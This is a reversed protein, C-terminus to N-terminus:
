ATEEGGMWRTLMATFVEPDIPKALHANMGAEVCAEADEKFANATMAIIPIEPAFERIIRTATLGDMIPMQMDMLILDYDNQRALAVAIEGNEAEDIVCGTDELMGATIMRNVEVDEVILIRKGIYIAQLGATESNEDNKDSLKLEGSWKVPVKFSFTSGKGETSEVFISGGMLEVIQKCITLGLGTGGYRRTISKDAQEFSDFLKELADASIGIGTDTCSVCLMDSDLIETVLTITGLDPTFKVANSLLNVIVQSIRFEDALMYRTIPTKYIIDTQIRKDLAKDSVVNVANDLMKAYDFENESIELKGSEIKSMDLVDNILTMLRHGAEETKELYLRIRDLDDTKRALSTMGIIANMPTRIEHSMSSLFASKALNADNARQMADYLNSVDTLVWLEGQRVRLDLWFGKQICEKGNRFHWISDQPKHTARLRKIAEIHEDSNTIMSDWYAILTSFDKDDDGSIADNYQKEWDPFIEYYADNAIFSGDSLVAVAPDMVNFIENFLLKTNSLETVDHTLWLEAYKGDSLEVTTAKIQLQTGNKFYWITEQMEHSNKLAAVQKAAEDPNYIYQDWFAKLKEFPEQGFGYVEQWGPFAKSYAANGIPPTDPLFLIAPDDMMEFTTILIKLQLTIEATKNQEDQTQESPYKVSISQESETNSTNVM